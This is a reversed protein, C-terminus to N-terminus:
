DQGKRKSYPDESRMGSMFLYSPDKEPEDYKKERNFRQRFKATAALYKENEAYRKQIDRSLMRYYTYLLVLLGITDFLAGIRNGGPFFISIIIAVLAVGMTFRAFADVGYRGQMFKNFKDRM